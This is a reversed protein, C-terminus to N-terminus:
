MVIRVELGRKNAVQALIELSQRALPKVERLAYDRGLMTYKSEGLRHYPLLDMHKVGPLANLFRFLADMDQPDDNFGPIVPCRVVFPLGRDAM